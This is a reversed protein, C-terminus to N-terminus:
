GNRSKSILKIVREDARVDAWAPDYKLLFPPMARHEYLQQFYAYGEDRKGLAYNIVVMDNLFIPNQSAHPRIEAVIKEAAQRHGLKAHFYGVSALASLKQDEDGGSAVIKEGLNVADNHRGGAFYAEALAIQAGNLGPALEASKECYKIAEDAKGQFDLANCLAANSIPSVPDYEQALRMEEVTRDLNGQNLLIWGYRVHATSNYPATEIAREILDKSEAIGGKDVLKVYSLAIYPEPISDDLSMAKTAADSA